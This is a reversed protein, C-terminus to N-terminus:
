TSGGAGEGLGAEILDAMVDLAHEAAPGSASLRVVTGQRAGITMLELTSDAEAPGAGTDLNTISIEAELDAATRALLAAPRAHIGQPNVVTVDRTATPVAPADGSWLPDTSGSQADRVDDPVDGPAGAAVDGLQATKATLARSAEHEVDALSRGIAAQVVAVVLGEVFPARSLLVEGQLDDVLELAMDSSLLASGLDSIVLVGRGASATDARRIAESVAVADTGLGGDNGAAIELPPPEDGAMQKALEVAAEALPASHSVVVIGVRPSGTAV